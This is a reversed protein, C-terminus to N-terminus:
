CVPGVPVSPSSYPWSAVVEGGGTVIYVDVGFAGLEVCNSGAHTEPDCVLVRARM